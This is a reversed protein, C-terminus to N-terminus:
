NAFLQVVYIIDPQGHFDGTAVGVGSRTFGTNLINARHGDSAVWAQQMTTADHFAVALNEGFDLFMYDSVKLIDFTRQGDPDIHSFYHRAVMDEARTKAVQDLMPDNRLPKLGELARSANTAALVSEPTIKVLPPLEYVVIPQEPQSEQYFAFPAAFIGLTLGMLGAILIKLM